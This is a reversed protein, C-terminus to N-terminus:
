QELYTLIERFESPMATHITNRLTQDPFDKM